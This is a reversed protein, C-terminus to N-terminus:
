TPIGGRRSEHNSDDKEDMHVSHTETAGEWDIICNNRDAHDTIASKHEVTASERQRERQRERKRTFRKTIINEGKKYVELRTGFTRGTKGIYTAVVRVLSRSCM